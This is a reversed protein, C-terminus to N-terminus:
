CILLRRVVRVGGIEVVLIYVGSAQGVLDIAREFRSSRVPGFGDVRAGSASYVVYSVEAVEALVVEMLFRGASPNPAVSFELLVGVDTVASPLGVEAVGVATCGHADTVTVEYSGMGLGSIMVTSQGDEWEYSYPTTGGSVLATATGDNTTTGTTVLDIVLENPQAVEITTAILCGAADSVFLTYSGVPVNNLTPTSAGNSWIYSFPPTGSTVTIAINADAAGFCSIEEVAYDITVGTGAVLVTTAVESCGWGDTVTVSYSGEPLGEQDPDTSGNSWLYSYGGAGGFADVSVAGLETCDNNSYASAVLEPLVTLAVVHTSDCGNSAVLMNTIATSQTYTSGEFVGGHCITVSEETLLEDEVSLSTYVISDCGDVSEFVDTYDGSEDYVSGGVEWSEGFCISVEQTTELSTLEMIEFDAVATCGNDATVTVEYTGGSAVSLVSGNWGTSWLYQQYNGEVVLSTNTGECFSLPGSIVPESMPLESVEVEATGTCGAVDTVEVQYIGPQDVVLSPGSSGDSWLYNVYAESLSLTTNESECFTINGLIEAEVEANLDVVVEAVGTCGSGDTVVVNYSGPTEVILEAQTSGDSWLYQDYNQSLSLTTSSGECFTLAGVIQAAIEESVEVTVEASGTCGNNDTVVVDYSGSQDVILEPDISGDSWLYQDYNQSLSLTTSSGECFTLAGVIQAAIEESAEVAVEASGTCGNNDTVVVDYSGPTEVTLEPDTSGDSWLYQDYIQSLSLTTSSGECFTLAGVIQAAIEESVEVTVDASGTCGNNDTVNVNYGGPTQVILEAETSGDSWLYQDYNQSLSLTTSSGECFTLAGVIQAAIEESVEVTVEATGTCGNNDTVVVDYSGPIEVILEADTSGDSWLYQDYNQSLSLTTSSGECFTLAGVIQAAIEESVEVTAEAMGTCGNNDTVMVDYSGPIEVILEADTSGDSWLYQDYNQSLSLTTSSGECFTLAGVIQAAIEESVEVTAEAMGTCGNNDTVMVDYSGPIEVILEADTSGDSWLYQDYNQSLSLTTSSGECFTLAGVIQAAIEENMEVTVEASGTCGNVDTVIVNYGGPTEVILEAETSGDSWLYQDYNQSLSLTTSSGECFTLAGVIQAAIEESMEVTVEASGTCGNVDTVIVNYGGPTEVILEAETSGDSWLYQDYNQSLSLTTSSGECFTLAGVIEAAIEESMEVTVEATGTCGNNDTVVVDYSGPTEVFLEPDTSGDSWLYQDYNQSLSLTTSSGECFTLAGVIEAAIEESTEVTVEATGTCGNNDTVVVDYSGPTEVFLEPDTSGDSWLYQDYNQSLSLTTSSGECFTLAGVIQAAIEENMEVTVEASGTCGNNDTVVVDYSGPTEVFLEPDTSGDSWLYQDYNQSLALTTSSGECFTLAGVIQAAIEESMEVTVEATGTCGNNDTVVVDYSGPTEVFLEPDTSGDSWLYQDYNQSLSLTTSSGECFTLAGVIQAAIEENMEVTVEASGTCGNVDTVIVNYGGSTEVILEAETSGDSWLYQDYNQSLSLTTSSGECFTLAGVIQAAIEENMEVTVEASGTCGNVDTVIVNYGGPTEVILEAETSGDSWLYQDYNQSLSLTTSSGECFTLAGVIQAAIEESMEVTVEASGTCGNNDTVVVDFSGPTEVALEPDTSGDSWLYQDYNQSLSLTTSNGECFTLAGVIQAAIEENMEVTVETTATCGNNDTVVVDYSGPTEVILEPDTSGDSWLYQDYNQSLSLTTSSGECFTLAGVIQAAIEENMEVTVEASGTCGNVDTVIVNYGGPTEVILEAETSGDSWLYQDYNQSLSLTTSSGECFTLAGVIQAAIEENMEVTVEASGTCGNVDTVIVNYGGPTEVILEAETSGDSWLYQDYNQSLSLTTSSGECFTLAGVIQAAIEESVEVIAEAMGTCGNNDTVMVDYSGPIEVFLEPDTSGDSWLYQDYNQSLSLTTSSGECFTLAGVIQAAIEESMEVTVEASGTCGNVDTVIVNYGGPTEVILEAETSGDSWLYQDYNQSLSLITSSGECFTLAGVIQAAIEESMEVTVEATGTCGNNDTVVVNYSGPTEVTLEPDTSGDSWLYQDYNQSLSLTTSGGFCFSLEGILLPEVPPLETVTISTNGECGNDDTVTLSYTGPSDIDLLQQTSNDSWLYSQFGGGGDVTGFADACLTDSGTISPTPLANVSVGLSDSGECGNSDIVTISYDGPQNIVITPDTAGNSWLYQNYLDDVSLNTTQGECFADEGDINPQLLPTESVAIQDTASCGEANTVTVEYLGTQTVELTQGTSNDSWLYTAFGPGADLLSSNNECFTPEGLISVPTTQFSQVEYSTEDTCGQGDSVTVAYNGGTTVSISQSTESNSWLYTAFGPSADLTIQEGECLSAPGTIDPDLACGDPLFHATILDNSILDVNVSATNNNPSLTNNNLTWHSFTYGAAPIATMSVNVDGFYTLNWPYIQGLIDNVQVNGTGPPDVDVTIDYPGTVPYCDVIGGDIVDCRTLIFDRIEQVENQWNNYNGGWRSIQGPMEPEIRDIMEDLIAIMSDCSLYTNNLDAYRNIYLDFFDPNAMLNVLMDVHGEFDTTIDEPDCPDAYATVDPIGTYNIYHGFTADLDWLTYRWKQATGNPNNGRWWATNWNLWDKCVTHSNIIMYDILSLVNLESEVYAYNAPDAMSNNIIFDHLDNWDAISGYEAWTGGWTKIFDIWKRGQGYYYKTFDHDDVKERIDYVGWYEGNVYMVCAESSREDLELGAKQSLVHVYSDRIHAGNAYPYNDNAAAKLIVRQFKDRTKNPFIQHKVAYDDGFQDRTIYDIGRQPYAWSDNGHKNFEGSSDGVRQGTEDFLEFYGEPNANTSGGLLSGLGAGSVSVVPVTHTEDIFFTHVDIHSSPVNFDSSIAIAKIVSTISINFPGTYPTSGATPVSGDTTYYISVNPDPSTITVQLPGTYFGALPSIEPKTAYPDKVNTNASNPTPNTLVGWTPGGDTTRGWSHHKKNPVDIGHSDIPMGLNNSLLLMESERTQTIKFNTHLHGNVYGENDSAWIRLYGGAPISIGAPIQFKFPNGPRDSLYYGSINASTPGVNYLEIWDEYEGYNDTFQSYNAASFENILVQANVSLSFICCLLIPLLTTQIKM